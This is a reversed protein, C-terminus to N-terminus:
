RAAAQLLGQIYNAPLDIKEYDESGSSLTIKLGQQQAAEMDQRSFDMRASDWYICANTMNSFEQCREVSHQQHGLTRMSGDALKVNNYHRLAGGYNSKIWLEFVTEDQSANPKIAILGYYLTDYGGIAVRYHRVELEPARWVYGKGDTTPSKSTTTAIDAAAEQRVNQSCASLFTLAILCLSLRTKM